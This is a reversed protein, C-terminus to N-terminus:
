GRNRPWFASAVLAILAILAVGFATYALVPRAPEIQELTPIRVLPERTVTRTPTPSLIPTATRTPRPTRTPLPTRTPPRPTYTTTIFPTATFAVRILLPQGEFIAPNNPDLKNMSILESLPVGYAEAIMILTEGYEVVHAISGDENPTSTMIQSFSPNPDTQNDVPQNGTSSDGPPNDQIVPPRYVFDGSLRKVALTYYVISGATSMGAGVLGSTPGTLTATHLADAWQYYIAAQISLDNGCAINEASIGYDAPESGNARQHTCTQISAQYESHSQALDMLGGDIQYAELGYQVRYANVANILEVASGAQAQAPAAPSLMALVILVIFVTNLINKTHM